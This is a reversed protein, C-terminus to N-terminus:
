RSNAVNNNRNIWILLLAIFYGANRLSGIKTIGNLFLSFIGLITPSDAFRCLLTLASRHEPKLSDRFTEDFVEAQRLSAVVSKVLKNMPLKRTILASVSIRKAGVSNSSHQRYRTLPQNIRVVAGSSSAVLAYWWDHMIASSPVPGCRDLLARNVMMACGTVTNQMLLSAFTDQNRELQQYAWFSNSFEVGHQDILSLNSHVLISDTTSFSQCAVEEHYFNLFTSLKNPHWVDDQDCFFFLDFNDRTAEALDSFNRAPGRRAKGDSIINIRSDLSSWKSLINLTEDTSGDDSIYLKWATVDQSLISVIQDEIYKAGNYTAMLICVNLM